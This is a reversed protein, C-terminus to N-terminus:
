NEYLMETNKEIGENVAVLNNNQLNKPKWNKEALISFM